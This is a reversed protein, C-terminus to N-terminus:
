MPLCSHFLSLGNCLLRLHLWFALFCSFLVLQFSGLFCQNGASIQGVSDGWQTAGSLRRTFDLECDAAEGSSFVLEMAAATPM